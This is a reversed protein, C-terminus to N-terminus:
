FTITPIISHLSSLFPHVIFVLVADFHWFLFSANKLRKKLFVAIRIQFLITFFLMRLFFRSECLWKFSLITFPAICFWWLSIYSIMTRGREKKLNSSLVIIGSITSLCELVTVQFVPIQYSAFRRHTKHTCIKMCYRLGIGLFNFPQRM